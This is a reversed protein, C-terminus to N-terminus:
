SERCQQHGCWHRTHAFTYPCPDETARRALIAQAELLVHEERRAKEAERNKEATKQQVLAGDTPGDEWPGTLTIVRRHHTEREPSFWERSNSSEIEGSGNPQGGEQEDDIEWGNTM